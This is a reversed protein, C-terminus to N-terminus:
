FARRFRRGIAPYLAPTQQVAESEALKREVDPLLDDIVRKGQSRLRRLRLRGCRRSDV